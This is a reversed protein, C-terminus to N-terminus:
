RAVRRLDHVIQRGTFAGFSRQPQLKGGVLYIHNKAYKKEFANMEIRQLGNRNDSHGSMGKFLKRFIPVKANRCQSVLTECEPNHYHCQFMSM